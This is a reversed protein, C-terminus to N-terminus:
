KLVNSIMYQIIGMGTAMLLIAAGLVAEGSTTTFLLVIYQRQMVFIGGGAVFPLVSLIMASTRAEATLAYGRAKLGVRKRIVDALTELTQTIGGGSRAQLTLATAFFQYETLKIRMALERLAVDLPIGISVKDALITFEDKTPEQADRSVTRLAEAMPIGVRVCRVITNLADPFQELLKANRRNTFWGFVFKTLMLWIVPLVFVMLIFKHGIPHAALEIIVLGVALTLPPVLWWKIPYTESQQLDVGILNAAKEKIQEARTVTRTLSIEEDMPNPPRAEPDVVERLRDQFKRQRAHSRMVSIMALGSMVVLILLFIFVTVLEKILLENTPM